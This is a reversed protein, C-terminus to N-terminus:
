KHLLPVHSSRPRDKERRFWEKGFSMAGLVRDHQRSHCYVAQRWQRQRETTGIGKIMSCSRVMQPPSFVHRTILLLICGRTRRQECLDCGEELVIWTKESGPQCAAKSSSFVGPQAIEIQMHHNCFCVAFRETGCGPRRSAPRRRLSQRQKLLKSRWRDDEFRMGIVLHAAGKRMDDIAFRSLIDIPHQNRLRLRMLLM